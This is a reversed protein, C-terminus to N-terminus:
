QRRLETVHMNLSFSHIFRFNFTPKEKRNRVLGVAEPRETVLAAEQGKNNDLDYDSIMDPTARVRDGTVPKDNAAMKNQHSPVAASRSNRSSDATTEPSDLIPFKVTL